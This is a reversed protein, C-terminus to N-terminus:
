SIEALRPYEVVLGPPVPVKQGTWAAKLELANAVEKGRFHNNAVVTLTRLRARLAGIREELRALEDPSYLYNYTEDRGANGQFWAARNRGHLRLYGNEGVACLELSFSDRALPMDLNAVTVGLSGLFELAAPGQWSNHRVEVVFNASGAFLDRLCVLRERHRPTDDFDYRFQALLQRLKGAELLPAFGERFFRALGPDISGHHTFDQPIKATFFFATLSETKRLWSEVTKRTPPRYFSSNIEILDVYAALYALQDGAKLGRPYVIGAWDPYSWGAVGFHVPSNM